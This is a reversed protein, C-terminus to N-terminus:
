DAEGQSAAGQSAADVAKALDDEGVSLGILRTVVLGASEAAVAKINGLAEIKAAVIRAEAEKGRKALEAGQAEIQKAAEAALEDTAVKLSAQADSRATELSSQYAQLVEEAESKLKEARSLDDEIKGQRAEFIDSLKPLLLRWVIFYLAGFCIILWFAQSAFTSPDFQPM